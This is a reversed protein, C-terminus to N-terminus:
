DGRIESRVSSNSSLAKQQGNSEQRGAGNQRSSVTASDPDPQRPLPLDSQAAIPATPHQITTRWAAAPRAPHPGLGDARLIIDAACVPTRQTLGDCEERRLGAGFTNRGRYPRSPM